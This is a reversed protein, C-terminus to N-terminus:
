RALGQFLSTGIKQLSTILKLIENKDIKIKRRILSESQGTQKLYVEDIVGMKHTILHRKQFLLAVDGWEDKTLNAAMDFDFLDLIIERAKKINQFSLNKIKDQDKLKAASIKTLERGYGDISSVADELANEIIKESVDADHKDSLELMKKVISLNAEFIQHSNHVGCDPCFGFVGFISYNLTCNDCVLQQELEQEHYYAIPHPRGEVKIGISLFANPDPRREIKKLEKHIEKTIQRIAVSKAYEIQEKTFFTDHSETHGCYPCHCLVDDDIGTGFKIKFYCECEPCERGTYGNEDSKISISFKDGKRTFEDM